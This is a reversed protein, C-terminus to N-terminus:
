LSKRIRGPQDGPIDAHVRGDGPRVLVGSPRRFPPIQLGLRGATNATDLRHVVRQPTGPTAPGRLQVQATLLTALQQRQQQSGPLVSVTWLEGGDQYADPDGTMM